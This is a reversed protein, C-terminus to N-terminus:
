KKEDLRQLVWKGGVDQFIAQYRIPPISPSQMGTYSAKLRVTFPVEANTPNTFRLAPLQDRSAQMKNLRSDELLKRWRVEMDAPMAPYVATLRALDRQSIADVYADLLRTTETTARAQEAAADALASAVVVTETAQRGDITATITASGADRATVLGDQVTAVKADSTAWTAKRDSHVQGDADRATAVLQATGGPKLPGSLPTLTVQTVPLATVTITARSSRGEVSAIVAATGPSRGTVQGNASVSLISGDSVSWTVARGTLPAGKADRLKASLPVSHGVPITSTEPEIAIADVAAPGTPGKVVVTATAQKGEVTAAITAQGASVAKVVGKSVTAIGRDSTNWVVTRGGRIAAGNSGFFQVTLSISGGVDLAVQDPQLQVRAIAGAATEPSNPAPAEPATTTGGTAPSGGSTDVRSPAVTGATDPAPPTVTDPKGPAKLLLVGAVVAIGVGGAAWMMWAPRRPAPLVPPAVTPRTPARRAPAGQAVGATSDPIPPPTAAGTARLKEVPASVEPPKAAPPQPAAGGPVQITKTVARRAPPIPSTPTSLRAVRTANSSDRAVDILLQRTPDDSTLLPATFADDIRPWREEPEKALMRLVSAELEAPIEPRLERLPKVEENFHAYMMAMASTAVFPKRGTLMEYAVVGLSYQDSAGTVDKGMCQEPSMYAPTGVTVGTMTLGEASPVKAIGFDTMVVWGDEDLMINAPKVDRHIVGRRHSYGLASAAQSLILQAMPIPLPGMSKMIPDLSQGAVFKMVFYLLNSRERVAYIPIIHPHNLSAATRAERRFREAMGEDLLATSMVKIAVRRDLAIDHALYVIAMGGRGLEDLIEYEGLTEQRLQDLAVEQATRRPPTAWSMTALNAQESSVDTGCNQCFRSGTAVPHGCNHCAAAQTPM